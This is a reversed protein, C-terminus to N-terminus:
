VAAHLHPLLSPCQQSGGPRGSAHLGRPGPSDTEEGAAYGCHQREARPVSAGSLTGPAHDTLHGTSFKSLSRPVPSVNNMTKKDICDDINLMFVSELPTM